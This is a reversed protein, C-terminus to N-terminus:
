IFWLFFLLLLGSVGLVPILATKARKIGKEVLLCLTELRRAGIVKVNPVTINRSAVEVRELNALAKQTTEKIYGTLRNNDMVQGVPHYGLGNLVLASVSHTDTTLIEGDDIGISNLSSLIRERLGSVMNNGDVVVYAAKQRSSKVVVVTIGGPGMGDELSFDHPSITAVGVEFASGTLSAVKDLCKVAVDKLSVLSKQVDANGDICNHANVVAGLNLGHKEAEQRVFLGLEQPLDEITRPALTFSVFVSKGFVQCCATALGNSVKVFSSAKGESIGLEGAIAAVDNIIKQNQAQSALDYEHGLLGHPVCAVCGLRKELETKLLSPLLSSGINKFPGPHVSPVVLIAKPRSCGFKILSIEVNREEGLKELLEEFPASLGMVWNLMFARFLSLSRLGLMQKGVNDLLYLFGFASGLAVVPSFLFFWPMLYSFSYGIEVWLIMFPVVCSFPELFSVTVLRVYSMSTVSSFVILRFIMVASFGLLCLRIWWQLGFVAGLGVGIFVFVFWLGWCFLSLAVTRRFDLITDKKLILANSVYDVALSILFLTAGFVLGNLVAQISQFLVVTSLFGGGICFLPLLLLVKRTSPLRFLSPYRKIAKDMSQQLSDETAM